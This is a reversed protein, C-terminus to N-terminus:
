RANAHPRLTPVCSTMVCDIDPVQGLDAVARERTAQELLDRAEKTPEGQTVSDSSQVPQINNLAAMALLMARLQRNQYHEGQDIRGQLWAKTFIPMTPHLQLKFHAISHCSAFFRRVREFFTHLSEQLLNHPIVEAAGAPSYPMTSQPLWHNSDHTPLVFASGNQAVPATATPDHAFFDFTPLPLSPLGQDPQAFIEYLSGSGSAGPHHGQNLTDPSASSTM